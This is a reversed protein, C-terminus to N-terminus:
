HMLETIFASPAGQWSLHLADRARTMAVYLLRRERALHDDRDQPDRLQRLAYAAPLAARDCGIILVRKFELGKAAHMTGAQIGDRPSDEPLAHLTDVPLGARELARALTTIRDRTRAFVGIADPALHDDDLWRRILDVAAADEAAPTPHGQLVPTPGTLLSRARRDETGGDLDDDDTGLLRDALRRIQETTRYNIRLITARGRTPIGLRSLSFGGPYIRQGADGVLMLRDLHHAAIARILRLKPPTLDQVEDVVVADFGPHTERATVRAAARDALMSFTPRHDTWLDRQMAEFVTWLTRRQRAGLAQGRGRRDADRYAPWDTIGQPDIVGQWEAILFDADFAPALPAHRNVLRRIDTPTAPQVRGAGALALAQQDVTGVTIRERETPTTILDLQRALNDCLTTVFSTLWVRHGCRALHRARHLAVVTKGTGAAGTVKAPGSFDRDVLARQTPHLFAIWRAM